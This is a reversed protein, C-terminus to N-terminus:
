RGDKRRLIQGLWLWLLLPFVLETAMLGLVQASPLGYAAISLLRACGAVFFVILLIRLILAYRAVDTAVLWLLAAYVGFATGYFRNQSDLSPDIVGAVPAGVIWDGAVGLMMHTVAVIGCVFAFFRLVIAFM